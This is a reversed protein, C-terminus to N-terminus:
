FQLGEGRAMVKVTRWLIGLDRRVVGLGGSARSAEIYAVDLEAFGSSETIGKQVQAAGTWGAVVENRYALGKAVQNAVMSPPWPRPGVLSMDGRLVNFLQPLEDLYWPKLLRRGAWTLNAEDAEHLRAHAEAGLAGELVDRRLTRFKLLDFERGRSIRRERYLWPGRNEPTRLKDYAIAGYAAAFFPSLLVVLGIAITRDEIKKALPYADARSVLSCEANNSHRSGCLTDGHGAGLARRLHSYTALTLEVDVDPPRTARV